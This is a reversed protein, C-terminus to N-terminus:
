ISGARGKRMEKLIDDRSEPKDEKPLEARAAATPLNVISAKREEKASSVPSPTSATTTAAPAPQSPRGVTGRIHNGIRRYFVDWDFAEAFQPHNIVNPPLKALESNELMGAWNYLAPNAGIDQFEAKFRDVAANRRIKTVTQNQIAIPDLRPNALETYKEIVASAEEPTGFRLTDINQALYQKAPTPAQEQPQQTQQHAWQAIQSQTQRIQSIGDNMKRLRNEQARQIRYAKLGGAEEIESEPVDFEEGDVKVRMTKIPAAAEVETAPKEPATEPAPTEAAQAAPETKEPETKESEEKPLGRREADKELLEDMMKGHPINRPSPPPGERRAPPEGPPQTSTPTEAAENAQAAAEQARREREANTPRGRQAM